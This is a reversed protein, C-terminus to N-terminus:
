LVEGEEGAFTGTLPKTLNRLFNFFLIKEEEDSSGNQTKM